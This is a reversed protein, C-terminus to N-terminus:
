RQNESRIRSEGRGLKVLEPIDLECNQRRPSDKLAGVPSMVHRSVAHWSSPAEGCDEPHGLLHNPPPPPCTRYVDWTAVHLVGEQGACPRRTQLCCFTNYAIQEINQLDKWSLYDACPFGTSPALVLVDPFVAPGAQPSSSRACIPSQCAFISELRRRPSALPRSVSSLLSCALFLLLKRRM